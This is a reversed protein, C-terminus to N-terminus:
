GRMGDAGRTFHKSTDLLRLAGRHKESVHGSQVVRYDTYRYLRFKKVTDTNLSLCEFRHWLALWLALAILFFLRNPQNHNNRHLHQPLVVLYDQVMALFIM